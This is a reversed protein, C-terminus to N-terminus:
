LAVSKWWGADEKWIHHDSTELKSGLDMISGKFHFKLPVSLINILIPCPNTKPKDRDRVALGQGAGCTGTGWWLDRDGVLGYVEFCVLLLGAERCPRRTEICKEESGDL